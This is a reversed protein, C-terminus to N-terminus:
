IYEKSSSCGHGLRKAEEMPEGDKTFNTKGQNINRVEM